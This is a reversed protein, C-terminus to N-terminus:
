TEFEENGISAAHYRQQDRQISVLIPLRTLRAIARPSVKLIDRKSVM